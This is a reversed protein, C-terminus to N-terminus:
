WDSVIEKDHWFFILIDNLHRPAKKLSDTRDAM